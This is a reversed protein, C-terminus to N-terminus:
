YKFKIFDKEYIKYILNKLESDNDIIDKYNLNYDSLYDFWEIRKLNKFKKILNTDLNYKKTQIKKYCISNSYHNLIYESKDEINNHYKKLFNYLHKNLNDEIKYTQKQLTKYYPVSFNHNVILEYHKSILEGSLIFKCLEEITNEYNDIFKRYGELTLYIDDNKYIHKDIYSSILRDYPNRVFSIM